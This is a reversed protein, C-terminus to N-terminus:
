EEVEEVTISVRKGYFKNLVKDLGDVYVWGSIEIVEGEVHEMAGPM